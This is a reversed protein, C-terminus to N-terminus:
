FDFISYPDKKVAGLQDNVLKNQNMTKNETKIIRQLPKNNRNSKILLDCLLKVKIMQENINTDDAKAMEIEEIMKEFIMKNSVAM